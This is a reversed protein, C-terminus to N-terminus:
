VGGKGLQLSRSHGPNRSARHWIYKAGPSAVVFAYVRRRSPAVFFDTMTAGQRGAPLGGKLTLFNKDIGENLKSAMHKYPKTFLGRAQTFIERILQSFPHKSM